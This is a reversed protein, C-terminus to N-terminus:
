CDKFLASLGLSAEGDSIEASSTEALGYIEEISYIVNRFDELSDRLLCFVSNIQEITSDGSIKIPVIMQIGYRSLAYRKDGNRIELNLKNVEELADKNDRVYFDHYAFLAYASKEHGDVIYIIRICVERDRISIYTGPYGEIDFAEADYEAAVIEMGLSYIRERNM